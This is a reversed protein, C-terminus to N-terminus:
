HTRNKLNLNKIKPNLMKYDESDIQDILKLIDVFPRVINRTQQFEKITIKSPTNWSNNYYGVYLGENKLQDASDWWNNFKKKFYPSLISIFPKISEIISKMKNSKPAELYEITRLGTALLSVIPMMEKGQIHKFKHKYFIPNVDFPLDIEVYGAFLVISKVCEEMSLILLSNASAYQNVKALHIGNSYLNRANEGSKKAGDLLISKDLEKFQKNNM